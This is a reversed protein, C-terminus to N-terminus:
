VTTIRNAVFATIAEQNEPNFWNMDEEKRLWTVQRKAYRRTNQKVLEIARELSIAGDFYEFLEKYGVTQLAQLDKNGHLSKAEAELGSAMMEDVRANIREYLLERDVELGIKISEFKRTKPVGTLVDKMKKGTSRLVEIARM